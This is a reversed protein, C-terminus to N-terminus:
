QRQRDQAPEEYRDQDAQSRTRKKQPRKTPRIQWRRRRERCSFDDFQQLDHQCNDCAEAAHDQQRDVMAFLFDGLAVVPQREPLLVALLGLEEILTEGGSRLLERV